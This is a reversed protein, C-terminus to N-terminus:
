SEPLAPPQSSTADLALERVRQKQIKGSVTKPLEDDLFFVHRPVKFTALKSQCWERVAQASPRPQETVVVAVPVEGWKSDPIGVVSAERVGRMMTLTREVEAPYINLAGSIIVDKKRGMITVYGDTDISVLDGTNLWGDRFAEETQEPQNLYGVMTSNSRILLEGEGFPQVAGEADRVALRTGFTATGVTRSRSAPERTGQSAAIIPFESLGYAQRISVAPLREALLLNVEAPLPEGGSLINRLRSNALRDCDTPTEALTRLLTPALVTATANSAVIAEVVGSITIGGTPMLAISGGALLTALTVSNFGAAWTLSSVVLFTDSDTLGLHAVQSSANDLITGHTHIAAKPRGTTGSTYYYVLHRDTSPAHRPFQANQRILNEYEESKPDTLTSGVTVVRDVVASLTTIARHAQEDALLVRVGADLCLYSAEDGKFLINIPVAIAGLAAIAFLSEIHEVRNGMMIGVASGERVGLQTLGAALASSRSHLELFSLQRERTWVAPRAGHASEATKELADFLDYPM